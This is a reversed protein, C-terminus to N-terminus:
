WNTAKTNNNQIFCKFEALLKNQQGRRQLMMTKQCNLPYSIIKTWIYIMNNLLVDFFTFILCGKRLGKSKNQEIWFAKVKKGKRPVDFMIM